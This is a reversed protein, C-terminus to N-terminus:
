LTQVVVQDKSLDLGMQILELVRKEVSKVDNKFGIIATDKQIQRLEFLVWIKQM